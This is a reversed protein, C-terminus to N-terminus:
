IYQSLATKLQTIAQENAGCQFVGGRSEHFLINVSQVITASSQPIRPNTTYNQDFTHHMVILIVGKNAPVDKLAVEIDTGVRSVVPCFVLILRCDERSSEQIPLRALVAKHAGLTEGYVHIHVKVSNSESPHQSFTHQHDGAIAPCATAGRSVPEQSQSSYPCPTNKSKPTKEMHSPGTGMTCNEAKMPGEVLSELLDIHPKLFELAATLQMQMDRLVHLYDKLLGGATLEDRLGHSGIM